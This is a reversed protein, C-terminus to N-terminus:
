SNLYYKKVENKPSVLLKTVPITVPKKDSPKTITLNPRIEQQAETIQLSEEDILPM